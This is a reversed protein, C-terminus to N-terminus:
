AWPRRKTQVSGRPASWSSAFGTRGARPEIGVKQQDSGSVDRNFKYAAIKTWWRALANLRPHSAPKRSFTAWWAEMAAKHRHAVARAPHGPLDALEMVLRTFGAGTWGPKTSWKALESFLVEM